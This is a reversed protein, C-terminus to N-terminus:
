PHRGEPKRWAFAVQLFNALILATAGWIVLNKDVKFFYSSFRTGKYSRTGISFIDRNLLTSLPVTLVERIERRNVVFDCHRPIVAVYPSIRYGTVTTIDDLEGIIEIDEEQVGIEEYAERLATELLDRDHAERVGGPFSIQNKHHKVTSARRTLLISPDNNAPLLPIIISSEVFGDHPLAKKTYLRLSERTLSIPDMATKDTLIM